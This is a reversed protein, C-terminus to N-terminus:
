QRPGVAFHGFQTLLFAAFLLASLFLLGSLPAGTASKAVGLLYPGVFGGLNGISNIAAISVAATSRSLFLGPLSWFPSKFAYLGALAAAILLLAPLPSRTFGTVGLTIAALLLPLASHSQREGTKDSHVSWLIMAITAVAYPLVAILGVEFNTARGSLSAIIQPMWYGVGLSGAQYVFYILALQLVKPHAIAQWPSLTTVHTQPVHDKALEGTLWAKEADSLWTAQGPGDTLFFYCWAGGLVAPIGELLLMWRWGSLGFATVHDM